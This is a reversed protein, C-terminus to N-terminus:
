KEFQTIATVTKLYNALRPQMVPTELTTLRSNTNKYQQNKLLALFAKVQM